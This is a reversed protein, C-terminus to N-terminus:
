HEPLEDLQVLTDYKVTESLVRQGESRRGDSQTTHAHTNKDLSQGMAEGFHRRDTEANGENRSGHCGFDLNIKSLLLRFSFRSDM